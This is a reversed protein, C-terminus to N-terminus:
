LERECYWNQYNEAMLQQQQHGIIQAHRRCHSCTDVMALQFDICCFSQGATLFQNDSRHELVVHGSLTRSPMLSYQFAVRVTVLLLGLFNTYIGHIPQMNFSCHPTMFTIMKQRPKCNASLLNILSFNDLKNSTAVIFARRGNIHLREDCKM